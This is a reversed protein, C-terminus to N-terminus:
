DKIFQLIVRELLDSQMSISIGTTGKVKELAKSLNFDNQSMSFYINKSSLYDALYEQEIQGPTPVLVAKKNLCALDMLTSYGSRAIVVESREIYEIMEEVTPSDFIHINDESKYNIIDSPQGLMVVASKQSARLQNIIISQFITRQPEPGSIIVCLDFDKSITGESKKLRSLTGIYIANDSVRSASLDGALKFDGALDPIWCQDYKKIFYQHTKFFLYEALKNKGPYKIHIQHTIYASKIKRNWLGFRNDSIIADFDYNRILKKLRYHELYIRLFIKPTQILIKAIFHKGRTFKINYDEFWVITLEPFM